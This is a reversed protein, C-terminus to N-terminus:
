APHRPNCLVMTSADPKPAARFLRPSSSSGPSGLLPLDLDNRRTGIGTSGIGTKERADAEMDDDKM